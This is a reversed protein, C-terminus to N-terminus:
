NAKNFRKRIVAEAPKNQPTFMPNELGGSNEHDIFWKWIFGGAYWDEEYLSNFLGQTLNTQAKLNVENMDRDSIWPEKGAFDVSRYGYETFLIPKDWRESIGKLEQKWKMWGAEAEEVTPTQNESIPFYADVGIFDLDGWFPVRKYEDWNAAYTLKGQYEMKIESILQKWYDPRNVIFQELETGICLIDANMEHALKAYTLIFESYANELKQWNAEDKMKLYGTFEGRWIWIQPKVMVKINNKQLLRIYQKAGKSTEGFWQRDTDFVIEPTGLNRIFGFPMVAAYNAKLNLVADVHKQEAEQRSAVFSIGDIKSNQATCSQLLIAIVLIQFAKM